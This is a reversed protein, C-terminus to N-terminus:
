SPKGWISFASRKHPSSWATLTTDAESCTGVRVVLDARHGAASRVITSLGPGHAHRRNRGLRPVASGLAHIMRSFVLGDLAVAADAQWARHSEVLFEAVCRSRDHAGCCTPWPPPPFTARTASTSGPRGGHGARRAAHARRHFAAVNARTAMDAFSYHEAQLWARKEEESAPAPDFMWLWAPLRRITRPRSSGPTGCAGSGPPAIGWLDEPTGGVAMLWADLAVATTGWRATPGTCTTAPATAAFSFFRRATAGSRGPMVDLCVGRPLTLDGALDAGVVLNDGELILSARVGCSEDLSSQHASAGAM